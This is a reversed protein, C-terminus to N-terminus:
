WRQPNIHKSGHGIGLAPAASTRRPIDEVLHLLNAKQQEMRWTVEETNAAGYQVVSVQTGNTGPFM